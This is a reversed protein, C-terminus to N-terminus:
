EAKCFMVFVLISLEEPTFNRFQPAMNAIDIPTVLVPLSASDDVLMREAGLCGVQYMDTGGNPLVPLSGAFLNRTVQWGAETLIRVYDKHRWRNHDESYKAAFTDDDCYLYKLPHSFDTHDRADVSHLAICGPAAIRRLVGSIEPLQRMHELVSFSFMLDVGSVFKDLNIADIGGLQTFLLPNLRCTQGDESFRVVETLDRAHPAVLGSLLAVNRAYDAAIDVDIEVINNLYVHKAGALGLCIALGNSPSAGLELCNLNDISVEARQLLMLLMRFTYVQHLEAGQSAIYNTLCTRFFEASQMQSEVARQVFSREDAASSPAVVVYTRRNTIPSSNDSSSFYLENGWHSYAGNGTGRVADHSASAPGLQIGNEFLMLMSRTRSGMGEGLYGLSSLDVKYCNGEDLHIEELELLKM